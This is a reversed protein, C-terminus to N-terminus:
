LLFPDTAPPFYPDRGLPDVHQALAIAVDGMIPDTSRRADNYMAVVEAKTLRRLEEPLKPAEDKATADVAKLVASFDTEGPCRERLYDVNERVRAREKRSLPPISERAMIPISM